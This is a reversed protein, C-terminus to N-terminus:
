SRGCFQAMHTPKDVNAPTWPGCCWIGHTWPQTAVHVLDIDDRALLDDVDRAADLGFDSALDRAAQTDTDAMARLALGEVARYQELAFRGFSGCGILGYGPDPM